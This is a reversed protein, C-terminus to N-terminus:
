RTVALAVAAWAALLFPGLPMRHSRGHQRWRLLAVPLALAFGLVLWWAVSAIAIMGLPAAYVEAIVVDGKALGGGSLLAVPGLALLAIAAGLLAGVLPTRGDEVLFDWVLVGALAATLVYTMWFPLRRTVADCLTIGPAAAAFLLLASQEVLGLSTTGSLALTLAVASLAAAISWLVRGNRTRFSPRPLRRPVTTWAAAIFPLAAVLALLAATWPHM